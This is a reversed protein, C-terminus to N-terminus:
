RTNNAVCRIYLGLTRNNHSYGLVRNNTGDYTLLYSNEVSHPTGSWWNGNETETIAGYRYFGGAIAGFSNFKVTADQWGSVDNGILNNLDSGGATGPGSPLHWGNSCVDQSANITDSDTCVSGASAACYNYWM